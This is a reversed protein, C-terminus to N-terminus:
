RRWGALSALLVALSTWATAAFLRGRDYARLGLLLCAAAAVVALPTLEVLAALLGVAGLLTVGVGALAAKVWGFRAHLRVATFVGPALGFAALLVVLLM